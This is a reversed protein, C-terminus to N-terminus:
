SVRWTDVFTILIKATSDPAAFKSKLVTIRTCCGLPQNADDLWAERAIHLRLAAAHALASGSVGLTRIYEPRFPLPTLVILACPSSALPAALVRLATSLAAFGPRTEQLLALDHVVLVGLGHSAVLASIIDLAEVPQRPRVLLLTDLTVGCWRAYEADFTTHMDIYGVRDGQAQALALTRLVITTAGSTPLGMVETIRGRPLGGIALAADLDTFGTPVVPIAANAPTQGFRRLARQGWRRQIATIVRHLTAAREQDV